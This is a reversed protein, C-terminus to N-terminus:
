EHSTIRALVSQYVEIGIRFGHLGVLADVLRRTDAAPLLGANMAGLLVGLTGLPRIGEAQAALRLIRDDCLLLDAKRRVALTLTDNDAASLAPAYRRPHRVTEVSCSDFFAKLERTEESEMTLVLAEARVSSAALWENGLLSRLLDLRRVKALFILPSADAVFRM